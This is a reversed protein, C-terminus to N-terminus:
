SGQHQNRIEEVVEIIMDLAGPEIEVKSKEQQVVVIMGDQEIIDPEGVEYTIKVLDFYEKLKMYEEALAAFKPEEQYRELILLIYNLIMKQEGIYEALDPSIEKKQINTLQFMGEIWVGTLLLASLDNNGGDRLHREIENFSHISFFTLSDLGTTKTALDKLTNLDFYDAMGISETFRNILHLHEISLAAKEYEIVYGLDAYLMGLAYAIDYKNTYGGLPEPNVINDREFSIGLDHSYAAMEIPSSIYNIIDDFAEQAIEIRSSDSEYEAVETQKNKSKCSALTLILILLTSLNKLIRNKQNKM